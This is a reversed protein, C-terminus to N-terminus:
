DGYKMRVKAKHVYKQPLVRLRPYFKYDVVNPSSHHSNSGNDGVKPKVELEYRGGLVLRGAGDHQLIVMECNRQLCLFPSGNYEM